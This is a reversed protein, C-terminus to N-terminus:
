RCRDGEPEASLHLFHRKGPGGTALPLETTGSSPERAAPTDTHEQPPRAIGHLQTTGYGSPDAYEGVLPGVPPLSRSPGPLPCSAESATRIIGPAPATM